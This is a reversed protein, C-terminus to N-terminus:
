KCFLVLFFSFYLLLFCFLFSKGTKLNKSALCSCNNGNHVSNIIGDGGM